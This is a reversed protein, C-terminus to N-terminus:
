VSEARSLIFPGVRELSLDFNREDLDIGIADRGHGTAVALTTGSGAFPDLVLGPRWDDHGCDSFTEPAKRQAEVRFDGRTAADGRDYNSRREGPPLCGDDTLYDVTSETWRREGLVLDDFEDSLGLREKLIPWDAPNPISIGKGSTEWNHTEPTYGFWGNVEALSYGNAIRREKIHRALAYHEDFSTKVETIRRSPEGCQRCVKEPCM